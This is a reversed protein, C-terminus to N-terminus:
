LKVNLVASLKGAIILNSNEDVIIPAYKENAPQLVIGTNTKYFRKLTAEGDIIVAGIEGNELIPQQHIFVIDNNHIGENIMSDGKIRLCFDAKISSDINFYREINEEALIPTGAAITGVLPVSITSQKNITREHKDESKGLLWLVNVKYLDALMQMTPLSVNEVIGNEYRSITSTSLGIRTAVDKITLDNQERSTKLRVGIKSFENM